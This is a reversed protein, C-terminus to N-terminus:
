PYFLYLRYGAQTTASADIFLKVAVEGNAPIGAGVDATGGAYEGPALARRVVTQDQADTLTLELYPYALPWGARNRLTASLILLGRHAPDAQLDSADISLGGIDHLPRIACGVAACATTLPSKTAPWRAAVADRFHFLAQAVLLLVLLPIGVGYLAGAAPRLKKKQKSWAFREEYAIEEVAEDRAAAPADREAARPEASRADDRRAEDRASSELAQANRLTVTPPGLAAEDYADDDPPRSPPPALSILHVIGDFVTKCHGCRVQGERIALQAPTVRFITKCGPCRTYQEEPM